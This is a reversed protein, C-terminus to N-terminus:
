LNASYLTAGDPSIAVAAPQVGSPGLTGIRRGTELDVAVVVSEYQSAVYAITRDPSTVYNLGRLTTIFRATNAGTTASLVAFSSEGTLSFYASQARASLAAVFFVMVTRTRPM